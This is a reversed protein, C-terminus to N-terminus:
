PFKVTGVWLAVKVTTHPWWGRPHHISHQPCAPHGRVIRVGKEHLDPPVSWVDAKRHCRAQRVNVAACRETHPAIIPSM